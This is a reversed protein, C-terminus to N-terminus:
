AHRGSDGWGNGGSRYLSPPEFPVPAVPAPLGLNQLGKIQAAAGGDKPKEVPTRAKKDFYVKIVDRVLGAADSGHGWHEALAVVVIEPNHRPAFGVFWANDKLERVGGKGAKVFENSAVQATGTKGCVEINPLRARGARAAKM